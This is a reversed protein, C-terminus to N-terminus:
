GRWVPQCTIALSSMTTIRQPGLPKTSSTHWGNSLSSFYLCTSVMHHAFGLAKAVTEAQFDPTFGRFAVGRPVEPLGPAGHSPARTRAARSADWTTAQLGQLPAKPLFDMSFGNFTWLKPNASSAKSHKQHSVRLGRSRDLMSRPDAFNAYAPRGTSICM